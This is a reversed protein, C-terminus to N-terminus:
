DIIFCWNRMNNKHAHPLREVVVARHHTGYGDEGLGGVAAELEVGPLDRHGCHAQNVPDALEPLLGLGLQGHGEVGGRVLNTVPDNRQVLAMVELLEKTSKTFEVWLRPRVPPARAVEHHELVRHQPPHVVALGVSPAQQLDRSSDIAYEIQDCEICVLFTNKLGRWSFLCSSESLNKKLSSPYARYSVGPPIIIHRCTSLKSVDFCCLSDDFGFWKLLIGGRRRGGKRSLRATATTDYLSSLFLVLQYITYKYTADQPLYSDGGGCVCVSTSCKKLMDCVYVVVEWQAQVYIFIAM